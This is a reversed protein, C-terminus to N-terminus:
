KGGKSAQPGQASLALVDVVQGQRNQTLTAAERPFPNM